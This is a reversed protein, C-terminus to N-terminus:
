SGPKKSELITVANRAADCYQPFSIADATKLTGHPAKIPTCSQVQEYAQSPNDIYWELTGVKPGKGGTAFFYLIDAKLRKSESWVEALLDRLEKLSASTIEDSGASRIEGALEQTEGPQLPVKGERPAFPAAPMPGQKSQPFLPTSTDRTPQSHTLRERYSLGTGPLDLNAYTGQSGMSLSVGRAGITTSIGSMSFNLRVGPFLSISRRFRFGM